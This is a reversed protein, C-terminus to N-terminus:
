TSPPMAISPLTDVWQVRRRPPSGSRTPGNSSYAAIGYAPLGADDVLAQRCFTGGAIHIAVERALACALHSRLWHSGEKGRPMGVGVAGAPRNSVSYGGPRTPSSLISKPSDSRVKTSHGITWQCGGRSPNGQTQCEGHRRHWHRLGSVPLIMGTRLDCRLLALPGIDSCPRANDALLGRKLLHIAAGVISTAGSRGRVPERTGLCTLHNM